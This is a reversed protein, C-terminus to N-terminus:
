FCIQQKNLADCRQMVDDKICLHIAWFNMRFLRCFCELVECRSCVQMQFIALPLLRGKLRAILLGHGETEEENEQLSSAILQLLACRRM